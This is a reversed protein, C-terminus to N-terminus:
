TQCLSGMYSLMTRALVDPYFASMPSDGGEVEGHKFGPEHKCRWKALSEAQRSSTTIFRWQKLVLEAQSNALGVSCGDVDVCFLNYKCIFTMLDSELWGLCSKPWEFSVEGGEAIVLEACEIFSKLMKRGHDKLKMENIYM